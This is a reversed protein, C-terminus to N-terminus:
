FFVYVGVKCNFGETWNGLEPLASALVKYGNPEKLKFAYEPTVSIGLHPVCAVEFRVGGTGSLAYTSTENGKMSIYNCGFQPTIRFRTGVTFGYGIKGGACLGAKIEEEYPLVPEENGRFDCWFVRETGLGKMCSGEVNVNGIYFGMTGGYALLSGFQGDVGFYFSNRQMFQRALKIRVNPDAVDINVKEHFTRYGSKTIKVDYYGSPMEKEYPTIGMYKGDIYLLAISPFTTFKVNGISGLKVNVTEQRGEQINVERVETKRNAMSVEVRHQGILLGNINQPTIGYDKGDIVIRAGAPNSMVALYGTIPAPSDLTITSTVDAEVTIRKQTPRHHEKRCEVLYSGAKLPGAWRGAGKRVGDIYIDANGDVVFTTEAFNAELHPTIVTTEGQTITFTQNYSKYLDKVLTLEHTGCDWKETSKYPVTGVEKNDVFVKAGGANTAETIELYGFNPTLKVQKVFTSDSSTLTIRGQGSLYNPLKVEYFYTGFDLNWTVSGTDDTPATEMPVQEGEKTLSVLAGPVAPNVKIQLMQKNLSYVTSQIVKDFTIKMVYTAGEKITTKLDYRKIPAYGERTVTVTRANKQVYVWLEDGHVMTEHKMHGFNFMFADLNEIAISPDASMVKIIAMRSGNGDIREYESSLATTAQPDEYFEVINFKLLQRQAWVGAICNCLLLLLFFRRRFLLSLM